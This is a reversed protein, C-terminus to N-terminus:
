NKFQWRVGFVQANNPYYLGPVYQKQENLADRLDWFATFGVLQFALYTEWYTTASLQVPAGGLGLGAAGASWSEMAIQVKLDFAGSRFTRWFKSRFTFQARAHSPPQFDAAGSVGANRPTVYWGDVSLANIPQLRVDAVWYTARQTPALGTLVSIEGLPLPQYADRQVLSLHGALPRTDLGL